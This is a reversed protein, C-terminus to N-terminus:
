HWSDYKAAPGPGAFVQIASLPEDGNQFSVTVHAPMYITTGATIEYQKGDMTLTGHGSLVHIYEDSPDQNEPVMAGPQMDIKGLFANQGQALLRVTTKGNPSTKLPAAEFTRVEAPPAPTSSQLPASAPAPCPSTACAVFALPLLLALAKM